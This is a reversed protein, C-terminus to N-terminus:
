KSIISQHRRRRRRVIEGSRCSPPLSSVVMIIRYLCTTVGNYRAEELTLAQQKTALNVVFAVM